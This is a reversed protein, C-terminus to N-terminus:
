VSHLDCCYLQQIYLQQHSFVASSTCTTITMDNYIKDNLTMDNYIKDNLTMDNYIVDNLLTMDNYIVCNCHHM